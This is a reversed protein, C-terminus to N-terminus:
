RWVEHFHHVPGRGGGVGLGDAAEIAGQLWDHAQRVAEVMGLGKALEAAIASSYSCGTGHTNATPHRPAEILVPDSKGTVLVDTCTAGSGHGGKVLVARAGRAMLAAGQEAMEAVSSAERTGLLCAAEPLNPTLLSACPLLRGVLAAVADPELLTDGSKAIMVPDVVVPALFGRIRPAVEDIIAVSFLMGVKIADISIDALVTDLQAAVMRPVVEAVATVARTNQATIATIVSAGYVGRASFTKLDAQIGAGGSSDSGAITLAKAVGM